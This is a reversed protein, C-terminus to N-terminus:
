RISEDNVIHNIITSYTSMIGNINMYCHSFPFRRSSPLEEDSSDDEDDDLRDNLNEISDHWRSEVINSQPVITQLFPPMDLKEEFLKERRTLARDFQIDDPQTTENIIEKDQWMPEQEENEVESSQHATKVVFAYRGDPAWNHNNANFFSSFDDESSKPSHQKNPKNSRTPTHFSIVAGKSLREEFTPPKLRM